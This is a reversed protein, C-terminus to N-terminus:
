SPINHFSKSTLLLEDEGIFLYYGQSYIKQLLKIYIAFGSLGHEAELLEVKDDIVVDLPFYDLGQKGRRAM